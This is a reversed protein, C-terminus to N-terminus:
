KLETATPWWYLRNNEKMFILCRYFRFGQRHYWTSSKPCYLFHEWRWVGKVIKCGWFGWWESEMPATSPLPPLPIYTRNLKYYGDFDFVRYPFGASRPEEKFLLGKLDLLSTAAICGLSKFFERTNM